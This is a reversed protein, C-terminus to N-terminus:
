THLHLSTAGQIPTHTHTHTHTLGTACKHPSLQPKAVTDGARAGPILRRASKDVATLRAPRQCGHLLVLGHARLFLSYMLLLFIYLSLLPLPSLSLSLTRVVHVERERERKRRAKNAQCEDVIHRHGTHCHPRHTRQRHNTPQWVADLSNLVAVCQM